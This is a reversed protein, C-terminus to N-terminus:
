CTDELLEDADELQNRIAGYKSPAHETSFVFANESSPQIVREYELATCM